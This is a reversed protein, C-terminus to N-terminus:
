AWEEEQRNRLRQLLREDPKLQGIEDLFRELASMALHEREQIILDESEAVYSGLGRRPEVFGESELHKFARAMTNPNVGMEGSMDRVSPLKSGPSYQGRVARKKVEEVIQLYIPRTPDFTVM